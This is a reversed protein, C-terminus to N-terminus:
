DNRIDVSYNRITRIICPSAFRPPTAAGRQFGIRVTKNMPSPRSNDSAAMPPFASSLRIRRRCAVATRSGPRRRLAAFRRSTRRRSGCGGPCSWLLGRVGLLTTGASPKSGQICAYPSRANTEDVFGLLRRPFNGSPPGPSSLRCTTCQIDFRWATLRPLSRHSSRQDCDFPVRTESQRQMDSRGEM